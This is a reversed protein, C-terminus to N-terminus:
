EHLQVTAPFYFCCDCVCFSAWVCMPMKHQKESTWWSHLIRKWAFSVITFDKTFTVGTLEYSFPFPRLMRNAASLSLSLSILLIAATNHDSNSRDLLPSFLSFPRCWFLYYFLAAVVRQFVDVAHFIEKRRSGHATHQSCKSRTM